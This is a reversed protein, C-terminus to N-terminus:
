YCCAVSVILNIFQVVKLRQAVTLHGGYQEVLLQVVFSLVYAIILGVVLGFFTGSFIVLKKRPALIDICVLLVAITMGIAPTVWVYIDLDKLARPDQQIFYFGVSAMLLVFLARLVHLVM